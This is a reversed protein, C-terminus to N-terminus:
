VKITGEAEIPSDQGWRLVMNEKRQIGQIGQGKSVSTKSSGGGGGAHRRRIRQIVNNASKSKVRDSSDIKGGLLNKSIYIKPVAGKEFREVLKIRETPVDQSDCGRMEGLIREGRTGISTKRV